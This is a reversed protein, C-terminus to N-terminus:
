INIYIQLITAIQKVLLIDLLGLDTLGTCVHWSFYFMHLDLCLIQALPGTRWIKLVNRM